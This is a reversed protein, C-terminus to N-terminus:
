HTLKELIDHIERIDKIAIEAMGEKTLRGLKQTVLAILNEINVVTDPSFYLRLLKGTLDLKRIRLRKMMGRTEAIFLLAKVPGPVPGYMDILEEM